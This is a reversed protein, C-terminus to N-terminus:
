WGKTLRDRVTFDYHNPVSPSEHITRGIGHGGLARIVRFGSRTVEREVARGIENVRHGTRAVRMVQQFAREACLALRRAEDTVPEVPVTLAADAM